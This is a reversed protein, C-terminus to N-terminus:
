EDGLNVRDLNAFTLALYALAVDSLNQRVRNLSNAQEFTAKNRTSLAHLLAARTELDNLDTWNSASVQTLWTTAKALVKPDTMLGLSEATSLAWVVRASTLRDSPRNGPGRAVVWPWGGDENQSTVLEAVLGQIRETLRSAEPADTAKTSKLYSL